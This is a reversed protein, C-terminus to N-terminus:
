RPNRHVSVADEIIVVIVVIDSFLASLVNTPSIINSVYELEVYVQTV